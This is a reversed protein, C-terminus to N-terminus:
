FLGFHGMVIVKSWNYVISSYINKFLVNTMAGTFYLIKPIEMQPLLM